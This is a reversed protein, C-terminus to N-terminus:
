YLHLSRFCQISIVHISNVIKKSNIKDTNKIWRKAAIDLLSIKINIYSVHSPMSRLNKKIIKCGFAVEKSICDARRCGRAVGSSENELWM